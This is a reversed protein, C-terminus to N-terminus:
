YSPTPPYAMPYSLPPPQLVQQWGSPCVQVRPYYDNYAACYYFVQPASYAPPYYYRPGYYAAAAALPVGLYVGARPAYYRASGYHRAGAYHGAGHGGVHGASAGRGGSHRSGAATAPLSFVISLAAVITVCLMMASGPEKM